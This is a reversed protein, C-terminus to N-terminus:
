YAGRRSLVVRLTGLLIRIDLWLSYNQIYYLDEETHLHMLKDSRGNIQWWGTMGQPVDFRRRQWPQYQDVLWPLEPRPGVLSMDGFLVNFLQPLEDLSLSRLWRGLPTVRPDDPRKHATGAALTAEVATEDGADEWMTRFKYIRFLYGYQGVREQRFIIPGRSTLKIAVAIVLLLPSLLVIAVGSVVLDFCRKMVRQVPDLVPERLTILPKGGFDEISSGLFALREISPAVRIGIRMGQLTAILPVMEAQAASPLAFIAEDIRQQRAIEVMNATAGFNPFRLSTGGVALATDAQPDDDVFGVLRLGTWHHALVTQAIEHALTGAGVILVRRTWPHDTESSYARLVLRFVIRYTVLLIWGITAIYVVQLRSIDRFSFYLAGAFAFVTATHATTVRGIEDGLSLNKRLNYVDLAPFGIAWSSLGLGYVQPSLWVASEELATGIGWQLRLWSALTMAVAILLLDGIFLLLRFGAQRFM